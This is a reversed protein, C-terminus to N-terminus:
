FTIEDTPLINAILTHTLRLRIDGTDENFYSQSLITWKFTRDFVTQTDKTPNVRMIADLKSLPM